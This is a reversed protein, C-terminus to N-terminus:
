KEAGFAILAAFMGAVYLAKMAAIPIAMNSFELFEADSVMRAAFYYANEVVLTLSLVAMSLSVMRMTKNGRFRPVAFAWCVGVILGLTILIPYISLVTFHITM